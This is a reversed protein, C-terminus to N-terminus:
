HMSSKDLSTIFAKSYRSEVLLNLTACCRQRHHTIIDNVLIRIIVAVIARGTGHGLDVFKRQRAIGSTAVRLVEAFSDFDVEGYVLSQTDAEDIEDTYNTAIIHASDLTCNEFIKEFLQKAFCHVEDELLKSSLTYECKLIKTDRQTLIIEKCLDYQVANFASERRLDHALSLAEKIRGRQSSKRNM